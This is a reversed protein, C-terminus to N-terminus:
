YGDRRDREDDPDPGDDEDPELGDQADDQVSDLSHGRLELAHAVEDVGMITIKDREDHIVLEADVLGTESSPPWGDGNKTYRCGPDVTTWFTLKLELADDNLYVTKTSKFGNRRRSV